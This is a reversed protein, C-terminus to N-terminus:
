MDGAEFVGQIHTIGIPLLSTVEDSKLAISAGENIYIEGKSFSESHAIWKKVTSTPKSSPIFRTCLTNPNNIIDLLINERKGNAIIWKL